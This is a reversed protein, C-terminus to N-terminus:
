RFNMSIPASMVKLRERNVKTTLSMCFQNLHFGKLSQEADFITTSPVDLYPKDLWIQQEEIWYIRMPNDVLPKRQLELTTAM